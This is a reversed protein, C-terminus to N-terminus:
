PTIVSSLQPYKERELVRLEQKAAKYFHEGYMGRVVQLQHSAGAPDGNLGLATAYRVALAGFAFRQAVKHLDEIEDRSMDPTPTVRAAKLMAALHSIMWVDPIKYDTPTHGIRLNQFRVVRFDEEIRLYEYCLYGGVIAWGGILAWGVPRRFFIRSANEMSAEVVGIMLGGGVLFYAYAFPYELLSHVVLPLLGALACVAEMRKARWCRSLLWYGCAASLLIGLPLGNWALLDVVVNHANTYTLSGPYAIAGAAHATPTQNWGYGIWPSQMVGHMVQQWILWRGNSHTFEIGRGDGLLLASSALPLLATAALFLLIWVVISRVRLRSDPQVKWALFAAVSIAGLVGARSESMVLVLSLFGVLLGYPFHGIAKREYAYTLAGLGMLLLTALQNPQALNGMAREGPDTHVVYMGLPQTVNLWQALGIAASLTAAIWMAHMLGDLLISNNESKSSTAAYGVIVAVLLGCLYLSALLADGAFLSIGTAFQIWPVIATAAIWLGLSPFALRKWRALCAAALLGIAILAVAESHFNVWPRYHDFGLWSLIFALLGLLHLRSSLM